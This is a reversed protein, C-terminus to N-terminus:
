FISYIRVANISHFALYTLLSIKLHALLFCVGKCFEKGNGALVLGNHHVEIGSPAAGADSNGGIDVLFASLMSDGEDLDIDIDISIGRGFVADLGHRSELNDVGVTIHQEGFCSSAFANDILDDGKGCLVFSRYEVIIM